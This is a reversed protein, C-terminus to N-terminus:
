PQKGGGTIADREARIQALTMPKGRYSAVEAATYPKFDAPLVARNFKTLVYNLVAAMEEDHLQPWPQMLGNFTAGHSSIPGTLGFNVVHVLYARGNPRSVYRGITDALPPYMGPIGKGSAQHCVTCHSAFVSEGSANASGGVAAVLIVVLACRLLSKM